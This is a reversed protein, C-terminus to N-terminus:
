FHRLVRVQRGSLKEQITFENDDLALLVVHSYWNTHIGFFKYYDQRVDTEVMKLQNKLHDYRFLVDCPIGNTMLAMRPSLVRGNVEIFHNSNRKRLTKMEMINLKPATVNNIPSHLHPWNMDLAELLTLDLFLDPQKHPRIDILYAVQGEFRAFLLYDASEVKGDSKVTTISSLHLHHIGWYNLMNDAPGNPISARRSLYPAVVEGSELRQTIESIVTALASYQPNTALLKSVEIRYKLPMVVRETYTYLMAFRMDAKDNATPEYGRERLRITTIRNLDNALDMLILM